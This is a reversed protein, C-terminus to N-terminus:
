FVGGVSTLRDKKKDSLSDFASMDTDLARRLRPVKPSVYISKVASELEDLTTDTFMSIQDVNGFLVRVDEDTLDHCASVAGRYIGTIVKMDRGFM